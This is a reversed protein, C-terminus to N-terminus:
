EARKQRRLCQEPIIQKRLDEHLQVQVTEQRQGFLIRVLKLSISQPILQMVQKRLPPEDADVVEDIGQILQEIAETGVDGLAGSDKLYTAFTKIIEDSTM